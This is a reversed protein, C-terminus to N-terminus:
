ARDITAREGARVMRVPCEHRQYDPLTRGSVLWAEVALEWMMALRESATTSTSLDDVQSDALTTKRIPWSARRARRERAEIEAFDM